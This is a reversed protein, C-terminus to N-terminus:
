VSQVKSNVDTPEAVRKESLKDLKLEWRNGVRSLHKRSLSKLDRESCGLRKRMEESFLVDNAISREKIFMGLVKAWIKDVREEEEQNRKKVDIIEGERKSVEECKETVRKSVAVEKSLDVCKKAKDVLDDRLTLLGRGKSKVAVFSVVKNLVVRPIVSIERQLYSRMDGFTARVGRRMEDLFPVLALLQEESLHLDRLRTVEKSQQTESEKAPQKRTAQAQKITERLRAVEKKNVAIEARMTEEQSLLSNLENLLTKQEEELNGKVLDKKMQHDYHDKRLVKLLFECRRMLEEETRSRLYLDDQLHPAAGIAERVRDWQDWGFEAM